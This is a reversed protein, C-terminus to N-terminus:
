VIVNSEKNTAADSSRRTRGMRQLARSGTTFPMEFFEAFIRSVFMILPTGVILQVWLVAELGLDTRGLLAETLRLLPHQLLYLSYSFAGLAVLPKSGLVGSLRSVMSPARGADDSGDLRSVFTLCCAVIFVM